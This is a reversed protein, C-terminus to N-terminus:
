VGKTSIELVLRREIATLALAVRESSVRESLWSRSQKIARDRLQQRDSASMQAILRDAAEQQERESKALSDRERQDAEARQVVRRANVVEPFVDELTCGMRIKAAAFAPKNEIGRPHMEAVWQVWALLEMAVLRRGRGAHVGLDRKTLNVRVRQLAAIAADNAQEDEEGGIHVRADEDAKTPPATGTEQEQQNKNPQHNNSYQLNWRQSRNDVYHTVTPVCQPQAPSVLQSPDPRGELPTAGSSQDQAAIPEVHSVPQASRQPCSRRRAMSIPEVPPVTPLEAPKPVGVRQKHLSNRKAPRPRPADASQLEGTAEFSDARIPREYVPRVCYTNNRGRRERTLFGYRELEELLRLVKNKSANMDRMLTTVKPHCGRPGNYHLLIAALVKGDSSLSPDLLMAVPTPVFWRLPSTKGRSEADASIAPRRSTSKARRLDPSEVSTEVSTRARMPAPGGASPIMKSRRAYSFRSRQWSQPSLAARSV